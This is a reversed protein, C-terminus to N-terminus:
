VQAFTTATFGHANSLQAPGLTIAIKPFVSLGIDGDLVLERGTEEKVVDIIAQKNENADFTLLFIAAAAVVILLVVIAAGLILKVIRM